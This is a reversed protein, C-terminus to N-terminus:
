LEFTSRRVRRIPRLGDRELLHGGSQAKREIERGGDAVGPEEDDLLASPDADHLVAGQERGREEVDGPLDRAPVLLSQEPEGEMGLIGGVAPEDDM